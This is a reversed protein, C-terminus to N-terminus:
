TEQRRKDSLVAKPSTHISGCQHNRGPDGAILRLLGQGSSHPGLTGMVGPVPLNQPERSHTRGPGPHRWAVGPHQGPKSCAARSPSAKGSFGPATGMAALLPSVWVTHKM